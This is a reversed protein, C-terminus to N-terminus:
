YCICLKANAFILKQNDTISTRIAIRRSKGNILVPFRIDGNSFCPAKCRCKTIKSNM